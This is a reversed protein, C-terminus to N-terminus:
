TCNPILPNMLSLQVMTMTITVKRKFICRRMSLHKMLRLFLCRALWLM